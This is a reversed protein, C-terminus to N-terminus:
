NLDASILPQFLAKSVFKLFFMQTASVAMKSANQISTGYNEM